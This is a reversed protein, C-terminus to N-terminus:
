NPVAVLFVCFQSKLFQHFFSLIIYSNLKNEVLFSFFTSFLLQGSLMLNTALVDSM